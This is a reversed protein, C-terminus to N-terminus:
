NKGKDEKKEEEPEFASVPFTRGLGSPTKFTIKGSSPDDIYMDSLTVWILLEKSKVGTMKKMRYNEVFATVEPAYSVTRGIKRFVHDRKKKQRLWVFGAARNYGVELIDELPLLGKPLHLEELLEMSKEKCLVDGHYIEANQRHHEISQSAM